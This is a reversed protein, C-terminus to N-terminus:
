INFLVLCLSIWICTKYTVLGELRSNKEREANVSAQLGLKNGVEQVDEGDVDIFYFVHVDKALFDDEM